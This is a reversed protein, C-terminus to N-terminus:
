EGDELKGVRKQLDPVATQFAHFDSADQARQIVKNEHNQWAAKIQDWYAWTSTIGTIVAGWFAL